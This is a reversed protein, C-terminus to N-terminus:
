IIYEFRQVNYFRFINLILYVICFMSNYVIISYVSIHTDITLTIFDLM